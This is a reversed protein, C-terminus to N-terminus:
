NFVIPMNGYYVVVCLANRLVAATEALTLVLTYEIKFFKCFLVDNISGFGLGVCSYTSYM